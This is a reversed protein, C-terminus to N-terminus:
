RDGEKPTSVLAHTEARLRKAQATMERAVRHLIAAQVEPRASLAAVRAERLDGAWPGLALQRAGEAERMRAVLRYLDAFVLREAARAEGATGSRRSRPLCRLGVIHLERLAGGIYTQGQV